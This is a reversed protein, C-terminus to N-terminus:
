FWCILGVYDLACLMHFTTACRISWTLLTVATRQDKLHICEVEAIRWSCICTTILLAHCWCSTFCLKFSLTIFEPASVENIRVGRVFQSFLFLSIIFMDYVSTPKMTKGHLKRLTWDNRASPLAPFYAEHRFTGYHLPHVSVTSTYIIKLYLNFSTQNLELYKM